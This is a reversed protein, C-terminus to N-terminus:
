RNGRNINEGHRRNKQLYQHDYYARAEPPENFYKIDNFCQELDGIHGAVYAAEARHYIKALGDLQRSLVDAPTAQATHAKVESLYIQEVKRMWAALNVALEQTPRGVESPVPIVVQNDIERPEIM